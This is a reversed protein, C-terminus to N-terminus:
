FNVTGIAKSVMIFNKNSTTNTRGHNSQFKMVFVKVKNLFILFLNEIYFSAPEM